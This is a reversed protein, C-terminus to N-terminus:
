GVGRWIPQKGGDRLSIFQGGSCTPSLVFSRKGSPSQLIGAIASLLELQNRVAM